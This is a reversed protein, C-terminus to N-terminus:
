RNFGLQEMKKLLPATTRQYDKLITVVREAESPTLQVSLPQNRQSEYNACFEDRKADIIKLKNEQRDFETLEFKKAFELSLNRHTERTKELVDAFTRATEKKLRIDDLLANYERETQLVSLADHPMWVAGLPPALLEFYSRYQDAEIQLQRVYVSTALEILGGTYNYIADDTCVMVPPITDGRIDDALADFIRSLITSGEGLVAGVPAPLQVGADTLASSLNGLSTDLEKQQDPTVSSSGNGALESLSTLYTILVSNAQEIAEKTEFDRDRCLQDAAERTTLIAPFRETPFRARRLCSQYFDEAMETSQAQIKEAQEGLGHVKSFDRCGALSLGLLFCLSVNRAKFKRVKFKKHHM